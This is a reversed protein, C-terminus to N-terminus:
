TQAPQAVPLSKQRKGFLAKLDALVLYNIPVLFLTVVFFFIVGFAISISMQGFPIQKERTACNAPTHIELRM